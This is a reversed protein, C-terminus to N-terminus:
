QLFRNRTRDVLSLPLKLEDLFHATAEEIRAVDKESLEVTDVKKLFRKLTEFEQIVAPGLDLRALKPELDLIAQLCSTIRSLLVLSLHQDM